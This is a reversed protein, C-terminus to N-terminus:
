KVWGGLRVYSLDAPVYNAPKKIKGIPDKLMWRNHQENFVPTLGISEAQMRDSETMEKPFKTLNNENVIKLASEMDIGSAQLKQILGATVVFMDCVEKVFNFMDGQEFSEIAEALEEFCFGLQADISEPQVFALNGALKNFLKVDMYADNITYM